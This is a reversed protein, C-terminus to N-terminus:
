EGRPVGHIAVLHDRLPLELEGLAEDIADAFIPHPKRGTKWHGVTRPDVKIKEALEKNGLRLMKIRTAITPKM